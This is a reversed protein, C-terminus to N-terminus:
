GLFLFTIRAATNCSKADNQGDMWGEAVLLKNCLLVIGGVRGEEREGERRGEKRGGEKRGEKKGLKRGGERRGEKRGGERGREEEGKRRETMWRGLAM